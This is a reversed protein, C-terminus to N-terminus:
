ITSFLCLALAVAALAEQVGLAAQIKPGSDKPMAFTGLLWGACTLSLVVAVAMHQIITALEQSAGAHHTTNLALSAWLAVASYLLRYLAPGRGTGPPRDGKGAPAAVRWLFWMGACGTAAAAAPAGILSWLMAGPALAAIALAVGDVRTPASPAMVTRAAGALVVLVLLAAVAIPIM